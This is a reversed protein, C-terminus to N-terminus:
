KQLVYVYDLDEYHIIEADSLGRQIRIGLFNIFTVIGSYHNGNVGYNVYNNIRLDKNDSDILSYRMGNSEHEIRLYFSEEKSCFRLYEMVKLEKGCNNLRTLIIKDAKNSGIEANGFTQENLVRRGAIELNNIKSYILEECILEEKAQISMLDEYRIIEYKINKYDKLSLRKVNPVNTCLIFSNMGLFTVVGEITKGNNLKCEVVYMAYSVLNGSFDYLESAGLDDFMSDKKLEFFKDGRKFIFTKILSM